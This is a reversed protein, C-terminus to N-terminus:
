LKNTIGYLMKKIEEYRINTDAKFEKPMYGVDTCIDSLSKVENVSGLAIFLFRKYEASSNEKKSYGEAINSTVSVAARRLQGTLGHIESQPMANTQAYIEVVGEYAKQYALLGRFGSGM